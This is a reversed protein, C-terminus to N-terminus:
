DFRELHYRHIIHQIDSVYKQGIASYRKLGQAIVAGNLTKGKQRLDARLSRLEKYAIGTNLNHFYHSIADERNKFRRVEHRAGKARRKPVIGCGPTYCWQGFYNYGLRAFRSRGWASEDAAQALVMSTPIVDVRSLLQQWDKEQTPDINELNYSKAINKVYSKDSESMTKAKQYHSHILELKHRQGMVAQHIKQVAPLLSQFFDEQPSANVWFSQCLLLCFLILLYNKKM